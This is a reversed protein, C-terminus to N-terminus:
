DNYTPLDSYDKSYRLHQEDYGETYSVKVDTIKGDKDKVAQYVPNVFGKYPAINLKKYRAKVEKHLTPEM